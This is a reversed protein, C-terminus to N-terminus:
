TLEEKAAQRRLWAPVYVLLILLVALLVAGATLGGDPGGHRRLGAVSTGVSLLGVGAM